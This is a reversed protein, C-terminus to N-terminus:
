APINRDLTDAVSGCLFDHLFDLLAAVTAM